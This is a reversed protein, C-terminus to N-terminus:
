ESEVLQYLSVEQSNAPQDLYHISACDKTPNIDEIYISRGQYTVHKMEQSHAIEKARQRDM